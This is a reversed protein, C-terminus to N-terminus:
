CQLRWNLMNSGALFASPPWCLQVCVLIKKSHWCRLPHSKTNPLPLFCPSVWSLQPQATILISSFYQRKGSYYASFQVIHNYHSVHYTTKWAYNMFNKVVLIAVHWNSHPCAGFVLSSTFEHFHLCNKDWWYWHRWKYGWCKWMLYINICSHKQLTFPM